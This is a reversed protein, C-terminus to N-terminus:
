KKVNNRNNRFRKSRTFGEDLYYRGVQTLVYLVLGLGIFVYFVTFVKGLTTQPYLDGYGVTTLTTAAFYLSDVISFHEIKYYFLGGVLWGALVM